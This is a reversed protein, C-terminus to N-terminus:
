NEISGIRTMETSVSTNSVYTYDSSSAVPLTVSEIGEKGQCLYRVSIYARVIRCFESPGPFATAVVGTNLCKKNHALLTQGYDGDERIATMTSARDTETKNSMMAPEVLFGSILTM